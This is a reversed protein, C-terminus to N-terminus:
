STAKSTGRGYNGIKGERFNDFIYHVLREFSAETAKLGPILAIRSPPIAWVDISSGDYYDTIILHAHPNGHAVTYMANPFECMVKVFNRVDKLEEFISQDYYLAVPRVEYKSEKLGRGSLMTLKNFGKESVYRIINNFALSFDGIIEVEGEKRIKCTSKPSINSIGDICSFFDFDISTIMQQRDLVNGLTQELQENTWTRVSRRKGGDGNDIREKVTYSRVRVSHATIKKLIKSCQILEQQSMLVPVIGPYSNQLIKGLERWECTKSISIVTQIQEGKEELSPAIFFPIKITKSDKRGVIKRFAYAPSNESLKEIVRQKALTDFLMIPSHQSYIVKARIRFPQPVNVGSLAEIISSKDASKMVAEVYNQFEREDKESQIRYVM